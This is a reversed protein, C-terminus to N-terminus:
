TKRPVLEYRSLIKALPAIEQMGRALVTSGPPRKLPNGYHGGVKALLHVVQQVTTPPTKPKPEVLALIADIEQQSFFDTAPSDPTNRAAQKLSEIRVAVSALISAWLALRTPKSLMSKEVGCDNKWCRHHEEIKWRLVYDEVVGIADKLTFVDRTTLLRWRLPKEGDPTPSVERLEIATYPVQCLDKGQYYHSLKLDVDLARIEFTGWRAEHISKIKNSFRHRVVRKPIHIVLSGWSSVRALEDKLLGGGVLSRNQALRVIVDADERIEDCFALFEKIDAGRDVVFCLRVDGMGDKMAELNARCCDEWFRTEKDKYAKQCNEKRKQSTSRKQRKKPRMWYKQCGQGIRRGDAANVGISNMVQLGRKKGHAGVSGLGKSDNLDSFVLETQDVIVLLRELGQECARRATAQASAKTLHQYSTFESRLFRYAAQIKKPTKFTKTVRGDPSALADNAMGVARATRLRNGFDAHDYESKGFDFEAGSMHVCM